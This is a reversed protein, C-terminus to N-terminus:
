SPLPTNQYTKNSILKTGKYSKTCIQVGGEALTCLISGGLITDLKYKHGAKTKPVILTM